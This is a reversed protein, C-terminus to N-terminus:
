KGKHGAPRGSLYSSSAITPVDVRADLPLPSVAPQAISSV